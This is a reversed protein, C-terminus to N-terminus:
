WARVARAETATTTADQALPDVLSITGSGYNTSSTGAVLKGDSGRLQSYTVSTIAGISRWSELCVGAPDCVTSVGSCGTLVASAAFIVILIRM